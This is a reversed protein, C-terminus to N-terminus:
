QLLFYTGEELYPVSWYGRENWVSEAEVLTDRDAPALSARVNSRSTRYFRVTVGATVPGVREGSSSVLYLAAYFSGDEREAIKVQLDAGTRETEGLVSAVNMALAAKGASGRVLLISINEKELEYLDRNTMTLSLLGEAGGDAAAVVTREGSADAAPKKDAAKAKGRYGCLACKDKRMIHSRVEEANDVTETSLVEGCDLCVTEVAAPGYVRHTEADIPTYAPSDFFYITTKTQEHLCDLDTPTAVSMEEAGAAGSLLGSLLLLLAALAATKRIM